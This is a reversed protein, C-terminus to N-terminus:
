RRHAGRLAELVQLAHLSNDADDSGQMTRRSRPTSSRQRIHDIHQRIQWPRQRRSALLGESAGEDLGERHRRLIELESETLTEDSGVTEVEMKDLNEDKPEVPIVQRTQLGNRLDGICVRGQDEAWILLDWPDPSFLLTRVAGAHPHPLDPRTGPVRAVIADEDYVDPDRLLDVDIVTIFGGESGLACLKGNPSWATTFYGSTQEPSTAHLKVVNSVSWKLSSSTLRNHPKPIQPVKGKLETSFYYAENFDGVAVLMRGDPSITAHNIPFPLDLCCTEHAEPLSYLRVTRDNNTLVAVIDDMHADEDQIRHISISNVIEDGIREVKVNVPRRLSSDAGRPTFRRGEFPLAEDVGLTFRPNTSGDLKITAFHGEDEGGVCIWGYGSATCRAEFPLTTIHRRKKSVTNLCYIEAGSAYYLLDPEPNSIYHRLQWHSM